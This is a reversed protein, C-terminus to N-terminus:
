RFMVPWLLARNGPEVGEAVIADRLLNGAADSVLTLSAEQMM